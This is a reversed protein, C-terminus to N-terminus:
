KKGGMKLAKVRFLSQQNSCCQQLLLMTLACPASFFKLLLMCLRLALFVCVGGRLPLAISGAGLQAKSGLDMHCPRTQALLATCWSGAPLDQPDQLVSTKPVDSGVLVSPFPESCMWCSVSFMNMKCKLQLSFFCTGFSAWSWKVAKCWDETKIKNLLGESVTRLGKVFQHLCAFCVYSSWIAWVRM